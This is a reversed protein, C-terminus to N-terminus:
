QANGELAIRPIQALAVENVLGLAKAAHSRGMTFSKCFSAAMQVIQDNHELTTLPDACLQNIGSGKM